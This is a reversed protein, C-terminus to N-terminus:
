VKGTLREACEPCMGHSLQQDLRDQFYDEIIQWAGDDARVKKCWACLSLLQEVAQATETLPAPVTASLVGAVKAPTRQATWELVRRRSRVWRWDGGDTRIRYPPSATDPYGGAEWAQHADLVKPQDSPHIRALWDPMTRPMTHPHGGFLEVCRDDWTLLGRDGDLHWYGDVAYPSGARAAPAAVPAAADGRRPPLETFTALAGYPVGSSPDHLPQSNVSIWTLTGDPKHVGMVVHRLPAGTRLTVIAPHTDGPFPSGDHRVVRWRPDVSSRGQMQAFSLGLIREASPNCTTIRGGTDHVVVGDAMATVLTRYRTDSDRLAENLSRVTSVDRLIGTAGAFAGHADWRQRVHAEVGVITQRATVLRFEGRRDRVDVLMGDRGDVLLRRAGDRDDPHVDRLCDGALRADRRYGTLTEFSASLTAWRGDAAIRFFVDPLDNWDAAMTTSMAKHRRPRVM